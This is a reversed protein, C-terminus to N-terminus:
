TCVGRVQESGKRVREDNLHVHLVTMKYYSMTRALDYMFDM